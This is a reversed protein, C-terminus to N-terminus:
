NYLQKLYDSISVPKRGILHEIDSSTKDFEGQKAAESFSALVTIFEEPVGKDSLTKKFEEASPSVYTIRKGSIETLISAIESYSYAKEATIDFESNENRGTLLVQAAAEAMDMRMAFGIKGDGAPQYIIGTELVKDGIFGPLGDMYLNNKLITYTLGSTKLLFETKIHAEAVAAIPSSKTNNRRQFSTYIIHKIGAERAAKVVNEHQGTRIRVDPASIFLLRDIGKFANILSPYINYDGLKILIGKKTLDKVKNEDRVLVSIGSADFGKKLLFNIAAKGFNGTAGTILMKEM